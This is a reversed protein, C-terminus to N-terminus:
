KSKLTPDVQAFVWDVGLDPHYDNMMKNLAILLPLRIGTRDSGTSQELAQASVPCRYERTICVALGRYSLGTHKRIKTILNM